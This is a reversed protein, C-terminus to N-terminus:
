NGAIQFLSLASGPTLLLDAVLSQQLLISAALTGYQKKDKAEIEDGNYYIFLFIEKV